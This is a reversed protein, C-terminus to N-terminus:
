VNITEPNLIIYEVMYKFQAKFTTNNFAFLEKIDIYNMTQKTLPPILLRCDVFNNTYM